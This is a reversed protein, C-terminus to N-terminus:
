RKSRERARDVRAIAASATPDPGRPTWDGDAPIRLAEVLANWRRLTPDLQYAAALAHPDPPPKRRRRKAVM